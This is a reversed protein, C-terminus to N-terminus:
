APIEKTLEGIVEKYDKCKKQLEEAKEKWKDRDKRLRYILENAEQLEKKLSFNTVKKSKKVKKGM